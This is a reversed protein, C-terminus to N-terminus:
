YIFNYIRAELIFCRSNIKEGRIKLKVKVEIFIDNNENYFLHSIYSVIPGLTM